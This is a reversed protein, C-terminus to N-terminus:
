PPRLPTKQLTEFRKLLTQRFDVSTEPKWLTEISMEYVGPFTQIRKLALPPESPSLLSKFPSELSKGDSKLPEWPTGPPLPSLPSGSSSLFTEFPNWLPKM